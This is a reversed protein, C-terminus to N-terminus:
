GRIAEGGDSATIAAQLRRPLRVFVEDPLDGATVSLETFGHRAGRVPEHETLTGFGGLTSQQFAALDPGHIRSDVIWKLALPSGPRTVLVAAKLFISPDVTTVAAETLM